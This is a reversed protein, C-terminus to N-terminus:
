RTTDENGFDVELCLRGCNRLYGSAETIPDRRSVAGFSNGHRSRAENQIRASLADACPMGPAPEARLEPTQNYDISHVTVEKEITKTAFIEDYKWGIVDLIRKFDASFDEAYTQQLRVIIVHCDPSLGGRLISTRIGEVIKWKVLDEHFPNSFPPPKPIAALQDRLGNRENTMTALNTLAQDRQQGIPAVAKNIEEASPTNQKPLAKVVAAAIEDPSSTTHVLQHDLDSPPWILIPLVAAGSLALLAIIFPVIYSRSLIDVAGVVRTNAKEKLTAWNRGIYIFVAGLAIFPLAYWISSWHLQEGTMVAHVLVAPPELIFGLGLYDFVTFPTSGSQGHEAMATEGTKGDHASAAAVMDQDPSPPPPNNRVSDRESFIRKAREISQRIPRGSSQDKLREAAEAAAAAAQESASQGSPKYDAAQELASKDTGHGSARFLVPDPTRRNANTSIEVSESPTTVTPKDKDAV